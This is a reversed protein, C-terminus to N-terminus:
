LGTDLLKHYFKSPHNKVLEYVEMAEEFYGPMNDKRALPSDKTKFVEILDIMRYLDSPAQMWSHYMFIIDINKQKTDAMLELLSKDITKFTHKVADEYVLLTNWTNVNNKLFTNLEKIKDSSMYVRYVGKKWDNFKNLPIIPIDRYSPHDFTDIILVKMNKKRYTDFFGPLNHQQNGKLYDTKGSGRRGLIMSIKNLVVENM